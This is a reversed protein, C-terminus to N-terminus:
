RVRTAGSDEGPEGLDLSPAAGGIPVARPADMAAVRVVIGAIGITDGARLAIMERVPKDNVVINSVGAPVQLNVGFNSLHVECHVAAIGPRDLVISNDRASGIRNVGPSLLVQTHEGNPFVLKM